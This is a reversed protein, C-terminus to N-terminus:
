NELTEIRNKLEKNEEDQKELQQEQKNLRKEQELLYLTLEEIKQLLQMQLESVGVGNEQMEKASAIEPLHKNEKIYTEVEKLPRLKYNDEFVFDAGTTNVVIENARISGNVDLKHAPNVQSTKGILVNGNGEGNFVVDRSASSSNDIRMKNNQDMWFFSSQGNAANKLRIGSYHDDLATQTIVLRGSTPSTAGIGVNGGNSITMHTEITSAEGELVAITSTGFSLDGNTPDLRIEAPYGAVLATGGSGPAVGFGIVKHGGDHFSFATGIDLKNYPNTTGIGVKKGSGVFTMIKYNDSINNGHTIHLKGNYKFDIMQNDADQDRMILRGARISTSAWLNYSSNPGTGIGVNDEFYGTGLFTANEAQINGVFTANGAQISTYTTGGNANWFMLKKNNGDYFIKAYSGDDYSSGYPYITFYSTTHNLIGSYTQAKASVVSFTLFVIYAIKKM